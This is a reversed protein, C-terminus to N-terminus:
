LYCGIRESHQQREKHKPLKTGFKICQLLVFDIEIFVEVRLGRELNEKKTNTVNSVNSKTKRFFPTPSIM